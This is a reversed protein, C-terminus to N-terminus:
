TLFEFIWGKHTELKKHLCSSVHGKNLGYQRVFESQNNDELWEGTNLNFALFWRQKRIGYSIPRRNNSQEKRTAWCCNGPEYNSNNDVREITLGDPKDGMDKYFNKFKHWRECVEIDRGGYNKYFPCKPNECRQLMGQWAKYTSTRSMNHLTKSMGKVM